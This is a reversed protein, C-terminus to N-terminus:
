KFNCPIMDTYRNLKNYSKPVDILREKHKKDETMWKLLKMECGFDHRDIVQNAEKIDVKFSQCLIKVNQDIKTWEYSIDKESKLESEFYDNIKNVIGDSESV